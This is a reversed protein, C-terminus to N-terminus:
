ISKELENGLAPPRGPGLATIADNHIRDSLTAKSRSILVCVRLFLGRVEPNSKVLNKAAEWDEPAFAKSSKLEGKATKPLGAHALADIEAAKAM